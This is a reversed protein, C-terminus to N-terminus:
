RLPAPPPGAESIHRRAAILSVGPVVQWDYVNSRHGVPVVWVVLQDGDVTYIVQHDGVRLRRQDPRSVMATTGYAFPDSQLEALKRLIMLAQRKPIKRLEAQAAPEFRTRYNM